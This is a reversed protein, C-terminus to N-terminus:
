KTKSKGSIQKTQIYFNATDTLLEGAMLTKWSTTPYIFKWNHESGIRARIPMDFQAVDAKWRYSIRNKEKKIELTPIDAYRLYQDFIKSFNKGSQQNIIDLEESTTTTSLAIKENLGRLIQKWKADNDIITRIINLLSAGKPYMDPSGEKHVNYPAIIPRDNRIGKREGILYKLAAAKGQLCEVFLSESYSTFSEHIWMDAIDKSTINNGFWEHGSEHIIIFDWSSGIGTGSLDRGLYGNQFKNGYAIASQHEMGLYPSEILKYGDQYFPYPGFWPEFCRLMPKVNRAFQDRAKEENGRLVYYDLTLKGKEGYFEDSLRVYDAVNLTVNYNNIPSSVFWNFKKYGDTSKETSRLRGNSVSMLDPPVTVSILMSDPEDSWHDKCPWWSSAGLEQCAVSIWPKGNGDSAYVFGGEWPANRAVIPSGSYYVTFEAEQGKKILEPFELFVADMESTYTLEEGRYIVKEILFNDFLDFQLKKLDNLATFRFLNSGSIQKEVPDVKIDLHYYTVDYCDRLPGPMGRLTDARTFKEAQRAFAGAYTLLSSLLLVFATYRM